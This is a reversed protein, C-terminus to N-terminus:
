ANGNEQRDEAPAQPLEWLWGSKTRISRIGTAAKARELTKRAIGLAAAEALIDDAPAPGAALRRQLWAEAAQRGRLAAPLSSTPKVGAPPSDTPSSTPAEAPPPPAATEPTRAGATEVGAPTPSPFQRDETPPPTGGAERAAAARRDAQYAQWIDRLPWYILVFPTTVIEILFDAFESIPTALAERFLLWALGLAILLLVWGDNAAIIHYAADWDSRALAKLLADVDLTGSM